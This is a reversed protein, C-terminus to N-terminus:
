GKSSKIGRGKSAKVYIHGTFDVGTHTFPRSPNSRAEPLHGMIQQQSDPNQKKCIVCRRLQKKTAVNGGLIWYKQRIFGLTLRAGAHLMTQHADEIILETLRGSHPLIIPHQMDHSIHAKKLRGGVRLIDNEDLYPNLKLLKSKTNLNGEQKLDKIEKVFEEQQIHKIIKQKAQSIESLSLYHKKAKRKYTTIKMVLALIRAIKSISQYNSLLDTIISSENKTVVHVDEQKKIEENTSYIAQNEKTAEFSQLWTPGQWWLRYDNLQAVRLGRSGCDAPNESSKVYRWSQPQIIDTIQITRNAVFTKWRSPNGQLWGLVATSDSWGFIHLDHGALSQKVKTMLKALLLAGCLELRPLSIQKKTPVM